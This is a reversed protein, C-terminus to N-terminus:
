TVGAVLCLSQLEDRDLLTIQGPAQTIIGRSELQSLHRTVVERVTGALDAIKEHTFQLISQDTESIAYTLLINNIRANVTWAGLGESLGALLSLREAYIQLLIRALEPSHTQLYSTEQPPLILLIVEELAQANAPNRDMNFLPCGGFCKGPNMVCLAQVRGAESYKLIRVRGQLIFWLGKAPEGELFILEGPAHRRRLLLEALLSQQKLSFPRFAPISQVEEISISMYEEIL